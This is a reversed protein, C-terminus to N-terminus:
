QTEALEGLLGGRERAAARLEDGSISLLRCKQEALVTASRPVKHLAAIEGFGDGPLLVRRREGGVMMAARGGLLVYYREDVRGEVVIAAEAAVENVVAGRALESCRAASSERSCRREGSCRSSIPPGRTPSGSRAASPLTRAAAAMLIGFGAQGLGLLRLAAVVGLSIWLGRALARLGAYAVIAKAERDHLLAAAGALMRQLRGRTALKAVLRPRGPTKIGATTLAAALYLATAVAVALAVPENAVLLGGALAVPENAVLLGGPLAGLLQSSSKANSAAATASTLESPTRM